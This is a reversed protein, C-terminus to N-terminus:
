VENEKLGDRLAVAHCGYGLNSTVLKCPQTKTATQFFFWEYAANDGDGFTGVYMESLDGDLGGLGIWVINFISKTSTCSLRGENKLLAQVLGDPVQQPKYALAPESCFHARRMAVQRNERQQITETM